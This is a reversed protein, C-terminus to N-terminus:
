KKVKRVVSKPFYATLERLLERQWTSTASDFHITNLYNATYDRSLEKHIQTLTTRGKDFTEYATIVIVRAALRKRKIHRLIAKGGFQHGGDIEVDIAIDFNPLSMDLLILDFTQSELTEICGHFSTTSTIQVSKLYDKTFAHIKALKGADDEVILANLM